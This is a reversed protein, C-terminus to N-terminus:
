SLHHRDQAVDRGQDLRERDVFREEIDALSDLIAGGRGFDALPNAIADLALGPERDGAADRGALRHGLDRGITLLGVAQGDNRRAALCGKEGREWDGVEPAHSWLGGITEAGGADLGNAVEGLLRQGPQDVPEAGAALPEPLEGSADVVAVDRELAFGLRDGGLGGEGLVHAILCLQSGHHRVLGGADGSAQRLLAEAGAGHLDLETQGVEGGEGALSGEGAGRGVAVGNFVRRQREEAFLERRHAPEAQDADADRTEFM